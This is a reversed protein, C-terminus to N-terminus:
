TRRLQEGELKALDVVSGDDLRMLIEGSTPEIARVVMRAFTSKGSGSEGVLAVTEGRNIHLNVDDCARIAGVERRFFGATIPFHKTLGRTELIRKEDMPASSEHGNMRQSRKMGMSSAGSSIGRNGSSLSLCPRTAFAPCGAPAAASSPVNCRRISRHPCM